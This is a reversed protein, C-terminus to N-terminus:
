ISCSVLSNGSAAQLEAHLDVGCDVFQVAYSAGLQLESRVVFALTDNSVLLDDVGYDQDDLRVSCGVPLYVAGNCAFRVVGNSRAIVQTTLVCSEM